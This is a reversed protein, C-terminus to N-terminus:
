ITWWNAGDFMLRASGYPTEVIVKMPEDDIMGFSPIFSIPHIDGDGRADKVVYPIGVAPDYPAELTTASGEAKNVLITLDAQQMSYHSGEVLRTVNRPPAATAATLDAARWAPEIVERRFARSYHSTDGGLDFSASGDGTGYAERVTLTPRTYARRREDIEVWVPTITAAGGTVWVTPVFPAGFREVEGEWVQQQGKLIARRPDPDYDAGLVVSVRARTGSVEVILYQGAEHDDRAVAVANEFAPAGFRGVELAIQDQQLTPHPWADAITVQRFDTFGVITTRLMNGAPDTIRVNTPATADQSIFMWGGFWNATRPTPSDNSEAGFIIENTIQGTILTRYDWGGAGIGPSYYCRGLVDGPTFNAGEFRALTCAPPSTTLPHGGLPGLDAQGSTRLSHSNQGITTPTTIIGGWSRAYCHLIGDHGNTVGPDATLVLRNDPRPSLQIELTTIGGWFAQGPVHTHLVVRFDRCRYGAPFPTGVNPTALMPGLAPVTRRLLRDPSWGYMAEQARAGVDILPFGNARAFSRVFTSAYDFGLLAYDEAGASWLEAGKVGETCLIADPPLGNAAVVSRIRNLATAVQIPNLKDKDNAGLAIVVVHPVITGEGDISPVQLVYESLWNKTRDTIWRPGNGVPRLSALQSWMTGGIGRTVTRIRKQKNRRQLWSAVVGLHGTGNGAPDEVQWSDGTIVVVANSVTGLCPLSDSGAVEDPLPPAPPADWSIAQRMYTQDSWFGPYEDPVSMMDTEVGAGSTWWFLSGVVRSLQADSADFMGSQKYGRFGFVGTSCPHSFGCFLLERRGNAIAANGAELVADRNDTFWKIRVGPYDVLTRRLSRSLSVSFPTEYAAITTLVPAAGYVPSHANAFAGDSIWISKGVCSPFGSGDTGSTFCPCAVAQSSADIPTPAAVNLTLTPTVPNTHPLYNLAVVRAVLTGGAEGAGSIAIPKGVWDVRDRHVPHHAHPFTVTAVSRGEFVGDNAVSLPGVFTVARTIVPSDDTWTVQYFGSLLDDIAGYAPDDVHILNIPFRGHCIASADSM